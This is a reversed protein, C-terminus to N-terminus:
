RVEAETCQTPGVLRPPYFGNLEFRTFRERPDEGELVPEGDCEVWAHSPESVSRNSAGMCFVAPHGDARLVAWLALARPLCTAQLKKGKSWAVIWGALRQQDPDSAPPIPRITDPVLNIVANAGAALGGATVSRRVYALVAASTVACVASGARTPLHRPLLRLTVRAARRLLASVIGTAPTGAARENVSM